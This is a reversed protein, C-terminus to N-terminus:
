QQDKEHSREHDSGGNMRNKINSQTKGSVQIYSIREIHAQKDSNVLVNQEEKTKM